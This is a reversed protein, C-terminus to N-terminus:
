KGGYSLLCNDCFRWVAFIISLYESGVTGSGFENKEM